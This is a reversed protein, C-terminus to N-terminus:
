RVRKRQFFGWFMVAALVGIPIAFTLDQGMGISTSSVALLASGM